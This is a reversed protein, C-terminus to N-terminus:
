IRQLWEPYSFSCSVVAEQSLFPLIKNITNELLYHRNPEAGFAELAITWWPDKTKGAYIQCLEWECGLGVNQLMSIEMPGNQENLTFLRLSREKQLAIWWDKWPSSLYQPHEALALSWKRWDNMYGSITAGFKGKGIWQTLHKLEIKGERLKIGMTHNEPMGLYHDVRKAYYPLINSSKNYAKAVSEPIEGKFFWRIETTPFM